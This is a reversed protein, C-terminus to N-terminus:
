NYFITEEPFYEIQVCFDGLEMKDWWGKYLSFVEFTNFQRM